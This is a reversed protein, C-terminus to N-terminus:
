LHMPDQPLHNLVMQLDVRVGSWDLRLGPLLGYFPLEEDTFLYSFSNSVPKIRSIWWGRHNANDDGLDTRLKSYADVVGTKVLCTGFVKEEEM